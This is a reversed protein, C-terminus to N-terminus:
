PVSSGDPFVSTPTCRAIARRHAARRGASVPFRCCGETFRCISTARTSAPFSPTSRWAPRRARSMSPLFLVVPWPVFVAQAGWVREWCMNCNASCGRSSPLPIARCILFPSTYSLGGELQSFHDRVPPVFRRAAAGSSPIMHAIELNELGPKFSYPIVSGREKEGEIKAKAGNVCLRPLEIM